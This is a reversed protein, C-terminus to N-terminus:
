YNLSFNYAPPSWTDQLHGSGRLDFAMPRGRESMHRTMASSTGATTVTFSTLFRDYGVADSHACSTSFARLGLALPRTESRSGLMLSICINPCKRKLRLSVRRPRMSMRRGPDDRRVTQSAGLASSPHLDFKTNSNLTLGLDSRIAPNLGDVGDDTSM